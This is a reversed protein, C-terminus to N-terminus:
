SLLCPSVAILAYLRYSQHEPQLGANRKAAFERARNEGFLEGTEDSRFTYGDRGDVVIHTPAIQPPTTSM